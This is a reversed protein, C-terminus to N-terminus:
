MSSNFSITSQNISILYLYSYRNRNIKYKMERSSKRVCKKILENGIVQQSYDQFRVIIDYYNKRSRSELFLLYNITQACDFYLVIIKFM